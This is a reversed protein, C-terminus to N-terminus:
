RSRFRRGLRYWQLQKAIAYLISVMKLEVLKEIRTRECLHDFTYSYALLVWLVEEAQKSDKLRLANDIDDATPTFMPENPVLTSRLIKAVDADGDALAQRARKVNRVRQDYRPFYELVFPSDHFHELLVCAFLYVVVLGVVGWFFAWLEQPPQKELIGQLTANAEALFKDMAAKQEEEAEM